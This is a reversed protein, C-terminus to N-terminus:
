VDKYKWIYGYAFKTGGKIARTINSNYFGLENKIAFVNSWEKIFNGKKDFQLIPKGHRKIRTAVSRLINTGYNTNEKHTVWELNLIYNNTKREDKHNVCPKNEPNPIFALAVLRHLLYKKAKGKYNLELALYGRYLSPKLIKPKNTILSVVKGCTTIYHKPYGLFDLSKM